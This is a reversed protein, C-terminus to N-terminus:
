LRPYRPYLPRQRQNVAPRESDFSIRVSVGFERFLSVHSKTFTFGSTDLVIGVKGYLLELAKSLYPSFLPDGGTLVVVLPRLDLISKAYNAIDDLTPELEDKRMLDEAYCYACALPCRGTLFWNILIPSDPLPLFSYITAEPLLHPESHKAFDEAIAWGSGLTYLVKEPVELCKKELWRLISKEASRHIAYNLGTFASHAVLGINTDSRVFVGSATKRIAHSAVAAM